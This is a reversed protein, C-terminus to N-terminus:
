KSKVECRVYSEDILCDKADFEYVSPIFSAENPENPENNYAKETDHNMIDASFLLFFLVPVAILVYFITGAVILALTKERNM